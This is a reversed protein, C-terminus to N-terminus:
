REYRIDDVYVTGGWGPKKKDVGTYHFSIIFFDKVNRLMQPEFSIAFPKWDCNEKQEKIFSTAPATFRVVTGESLIAKAWFTVKRYGGPSLDKPPTINYTRFNSAVILSIGCWEHQGAVDNGNWFYQIVNGRDPADPDKFEIEVKQNEEGPIRVVDGGTELKDGYILWQGSWIGTAGDPRPDRLSNLPTTECGYFLLVITLALINISLKM